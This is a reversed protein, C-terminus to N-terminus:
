QIESLYLRAIKTFEVEQSNDIVYQFQGSAKEKDGRALYLRGLDLYVKEEMLKVSSAAMAELVKIAEDNKGLDEYLASLRFGALDRLYASGNQFVGEVLPLARDKHGKEILLDSIGLTVPQAGIYNGMPARTELFRKVMEEDNIKNEIFDKLAGQEFAYLKDDFETSRTNSFQQYVGFGIVGAILLVIIGLVTVKHEAIFAGLETQKLVEDVNTGQVIDNGTKTTM